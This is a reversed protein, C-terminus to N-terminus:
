VHFKACKGVPNQQRFGDGVLQNRRVFPEGVIRRPRGEPQRQGGPRRLQPKTSPPLRRRHRVGVREDIRVAPRNGMVDHGIV